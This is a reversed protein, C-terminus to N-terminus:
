WGVPKRVWRQNPLQMEEPLQHKAYQGHRLKFSGTAAQALERNSRGFPFAVWLAMQPALTRVTHLAPLLDTDGSVLVVVDCADTVALAIGHAAIAVDTEKEEHRFWVTRCTPCRMRRSKFRGLHVRVGSATLAETYDRDAQVIGPRTTELHEAFTVFYHTESTVATPAILYLHADCLARVDLWPSIGVGPFAQRAQRVSHHLNLGDVLFVVRLKKPRRHAM